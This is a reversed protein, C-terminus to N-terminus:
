LASANKEARLFAMSAGLWETGAAGNRRAVQYWGRGHVSNSPMVWLRAAFSKIGVVGMCLVM